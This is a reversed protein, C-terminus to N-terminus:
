SQGRKMRLLIAFLTSLVAGSALFAWLLTLQMPHLAFWAAVEVPILAQLVPFRLAPHNMLWEAAPPL